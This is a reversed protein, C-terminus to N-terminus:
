AEVIRPRTNRVTKNEEHWGADYARGNFDAHDRYWKDYVGNRCDQRGVSYNDRATLIRKECEAKIESIIMELTYEKNEM